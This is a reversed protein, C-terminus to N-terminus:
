ADIPDPFLSIDRLWGSAIERKGTDTLHLGDPLFLQAKEEAKSIRNWIAMNLCVKIPIPLLSAESRLRQAHRKALRNFASVEEQLLLSKHKFSRPFMASIVITSNPHNLQLLQALNTTHTRTTQSNIPDTNLHPHFVLDNHGCHLIIYAPRFSIVSSICSQYRASIALTGRPHIISFTHVEPNILKLASDLDRGHSDALILINNNTPLAVAM